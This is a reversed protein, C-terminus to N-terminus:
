PSHRHRPPRSQLKTTQKDEWVRKARLIDQETIGARGEDLAHCAAECLMETCAGICNNSLVLLKAALDSNPSLLDDADPLPFDTLYSAIFNYYEQNEEWPQLRHVEFRTALQQYNRLLDMVSELGSVIVTIGPINCIKKLGALLKPLTRPQCTALEHLEDILVLTTRKATLTRCLAAFKMEPDGKASVPAHLATLCANYLSNLTWNPGVEIHIASVGQPSAKRADDYIWELLTSKGLWSSGVLALCLSRREYQHHHLDHARRMFADGAVYRIRRCRRVHRKQESLSLSLFREATANLPM